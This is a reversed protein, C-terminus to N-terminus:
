WPRKTKTRCSRGRMQRPSRKPETARSGGDQTGTLGHLRPRSATSASHVMAESQVIAPIIPVGDESTLTVRYDQNGRVLARVGGTTEELSEVHGHCFYDLGRQYSEAGARRRIAADTIAHSFGNAMGQIIM